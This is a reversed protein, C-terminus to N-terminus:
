ELQASVSKFKAGKVLSVKAILHKARLAPEISIARYGPSGTRAKDMAARLSVTAKAIAAAQKKAEAVDEAENLPESKALNGTTPDM